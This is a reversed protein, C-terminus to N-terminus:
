RQVKYLYRINNQLCEGGGWKWSTGGKETLCVNKCGQLILLRQGVVILCANRRRLRRERQDDEGGGDRHVFRGGGGM